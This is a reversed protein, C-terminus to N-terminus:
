RRLEPKRPVKQLRMGKREGEVGPQVGEGVIHVRCAARARQDRLGVGKWGWWGEHEGFGVKEGGGDWGLCPVVDADRGEKEIADVIQGLPQLHDAVRELRTPQPHVGPWEVEMLLLLSRECRVAEALAACFPWCRFYRGASYHHAGSPAAEARRQM